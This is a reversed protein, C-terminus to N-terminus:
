EGKRLSRERGGHRGFVLFPPTARRLLVMRSATRGGRCVHCLAHPGSTDLTTGHFPDGNTEAANPRTTQSGDKLVVKYSGPAGDVNLVQPWARVSLGQEELQKILHARIELYDPSQADKIGDADAGPKVGLIDYFSYKEWDESM